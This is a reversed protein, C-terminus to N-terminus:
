DLLPNRTKLGAMRTFDRDATWLQTVGHERCIAAIRADHVQGATLRGQLIISKLERWHGQMEGLMQLSPSEMWIEIQELADAMAGARRMIKAHTVVALFEHVCPWPIAWTAASEALDRVCTRAREHWPSDQDHAYVLINTDVAILTGSM